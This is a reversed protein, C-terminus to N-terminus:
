ANTASSICAVVTWDMSRTIFVAITSLFGETDEAASTDEYWRRGMAFSTTRRHCLSVWSAAPLVLDDPPKESPKEDDELETGTFLEGMVCYWAMPRRYWIRICTRFTRTLITCCNPAAPCALLGAALTMSTRRAACSASSSWWSRFGMICSRSPQNRCLLSITFKSAALAMQATRSTVSASTEWATWTRCSNRVDGRATVLSAARRMRCLKAENLGCATLTQLGSMSSRIELLLREMAVKAMVVSRLVPFSALTSRSIFCIEPKMDSIVSSNLIVMTSAMRVSQKFNGLLCAPMSAKRLPMRLSSPPYSNLRDTTSLMNSRILNTGSELSSARACRQSNMSSQSNVLSATRMRCRSPRSPGLVDWGVLYMRNM